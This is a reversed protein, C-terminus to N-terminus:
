SLIRLRWEKPYYNNSRKGLGKLWGLRLNKYTSIVWGKESIHIPMKRLFQLATRRDLSLHVIKQSCAPTMALSHDPVLNKKFLKGIKWPQDLSPISQSLIQYRTLTDKPLFGIESKQLTLQWEENGTLWEETPFRKIITSSNDSRKIGHYKHASQKKGKNQLISFFFGEGPMRHPFCQYGTCGDRLIRYVPWRELDPVKISRLDFEKVLWKVNEINEQDNFTCTSYILFGDPKLSPLIETLIKKQRNSCLQVIGPSWEKRAVPDKRFMGEGSCPADVLIVDFFHPIKNFNGPNTRTLWVRSNGWKVINEKLIQFRKPHIENCILLDGLKLKGAILTSKGGPAACLDLITQNAHHKLCFDMVPSLIMSAAEQVYYAGAHWWPDLAFQPRASLYAGESCWGVKHLSESDTNTVKDRNWRISVPPHSDLADLLANAESGMQATMRNIFGPPLPEVM